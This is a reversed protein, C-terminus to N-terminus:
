SGGTGGIDGRGAKAVRNRPDEGIRRIIDKRSKLYLVNGIALLAILFGAGALALGFDHSINYIYNGGLLVIGVAGVVILWVLLSRHRQYAAYARELTRETKRVGELYRWYDQLITPPEDGGEEPDGGYLGIEEARRFLSLLRRSRYQIMLELIDEYEGRVKEPNGTLKDLLGIWPVVAGLAPLIWLSDGQPM